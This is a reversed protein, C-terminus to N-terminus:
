FKEMADRLKERTEPAYWREVFVREKEPLRKRIQAAVAEVRNAKILAYADPSDAALSAAKNVAAPLVEELSLVQDVLGMELSEEPSSFEGSEVIDRGIRAGVIQGLIQGAAYPVPVGLKIENLGMLARSDRIIRYDCCLTLICGGAIAHGTIAAVTPKPSTYLQLCFQNFKQYYDLFGAKSLDFLNPIDFGISFFKPDASALVLANVERDLNLHDLRASLDTILQANITNSKGNALRIIAVGDQIELQYSEM